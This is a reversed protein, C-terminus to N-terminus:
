CAPEITVTLRKSTFQEQLLEAHERHTAMLLSIGRKHAELTCVAARRFDLSTLHVITEIVEGLESVEDNHLLVNWQPMRDVRPPATRTQAREITTTGGHEADHRHGHNQNQIQTQNQTQSMREHERPGKFTGRTM